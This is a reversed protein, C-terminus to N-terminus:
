PAVPTPSSEAPGGGHSNLSLRIEEVKQAVDLLAAVLDFEKSTLHRTITAPYNGAPVPKFISQTGKAQHKGFTGTWIPHSPDGGEYAIFVGQGIAPPFAAVSSADAPWIWETPELGTVQPVNVKIRRLGEPDKTSVVTGRYHGFFRKNGSEDQM